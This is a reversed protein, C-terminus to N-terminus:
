RVPAEALPLSLLFSAGGPAADLALDGGMARALARAIPLGLGLGGEKTTGLPEFVRGRLDEAIGPGEDAVRVYATRADRSVVLQLRRKHPPAHELADLGNHILNELIIRAYTADGRAQIAVQEGARARV